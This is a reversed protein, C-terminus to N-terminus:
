PAPSRLVARAFRPVAALTGTVSVGVCRNRPVAMNSAFSQSERLAQCACFALALNHWHLILLGTNVRRIENSGGMSKIPADPNMESMRCLLIEKSAILSIM